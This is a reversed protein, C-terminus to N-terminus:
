QGGLNRIQLGRALRDASTGATASHLTFGSSLGTMVIPSKDINFVLAYHEASTTKHFADGGVLTVDFDLNSGDVTVTVEDGAAPNCNGSCTDFNLPYVNKVSAQAGNGAFLAMAVAGAFVARGFAIKM